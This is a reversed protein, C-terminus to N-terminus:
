SGKVQAAVEAAFDTQAKEIGEGLQFRVYRALKVPSGAAKGAQAIVDAIKTKGDIVFIQGLLTNEQQFKRIGGEIMKEVIEAPKGSAAAKERAIAREREVVAPDLGTEDLALPNAAAIHMALQKGLAALQDAPAASELAVLVGIKGLGEGAANHVYSAVVGQAVEVVEVRRVSQNEGITAINSTLVDRVSGGTPYGADLLADVSSGNSLALETVARVFGQFQDNKAVFDTESNVEVVAGKTGQVAVGVLGEAAVRGAKKAASALGKTRLWDVAAEFDGGTETLAKKCDMMGAGTQDRLDKVMSATIEAM